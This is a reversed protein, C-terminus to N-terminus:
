GGAGGVDLGAKRLGAILDDALEPQFWKHVTERAASAFDPRQALLNRLSRGAADPDGLQGYTAALFVHSWFLDPLNMKRGEDLAGIYNRKRYENIFFVSRYWEPHHPNLEMGRAVLACGREWDGAFCILFGAENSGDLPNLAISREAEHLCGAIDRNFFLAVALTMHALHNTPALDVARRAAALARDLSGPRPNFGHGFEHSYIWSLMAWCDANTPATEVAHELVDRAVAHETPSLRHHYSFGRMVAEYPTLATPDLHRVAESISRPLVGFQDALTSVIRPVLEDQLAFVQDPDFRRTYTEAWLHAGTSADVLQAAIRVTAGARRVSGTMVYRAGLDQGITRVEGVADAYQATSSRGIVRLYSFRSLGTVVEETLGEALDQVDAGGGTSRFPLVAVRFGEDAPVAGSRESAAPVGSTGSSSPAPVIEALENAVDRATQVRRRLDKELCRRVLRAFGAPVERRREDVAPPTVHLIASAVEISTAGEFPRQGTAMQYLLIGLAFIDARHDVPRGAVQEPAMYAPTGMAVGVETQDAAATTTEVAGAPRMEKALGFDLVKVRGDNTIMVNAPKLDRHVIGQEHAAALADALAIGVPLVRSMPLGGAPILQALSQGEVLEMTIFHIGDAEEVSHVTVIHPHNLAAVARAERRFRALREPDDALAEPLVKLAVDRGLTTDKARYVEGM